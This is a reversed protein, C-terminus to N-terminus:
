FEVVNHASLMEASQVGDLAMLQGIAEDAPTTKSLVINYAYMVLDDSNLYNLNLLKAKSFNTRMVSELETQAVRGASAQLYLVSDLKEASGFDFWDLLLAALCLTLSGAIAIGYNSSGVALGVVLSMFIFATDKPDKVATRYRIITFTGLLAFARTIDNGIVMMALAVTMSVMVISYVYSQSYSIGRHTRRYTEAVMLALGMSILLNLVVIDATYIEPSIVTRGLLRDIFEDITM